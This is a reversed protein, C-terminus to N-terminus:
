WMSSAVRDAKAKRVGFPPQVPLDIADADATAAHGEGLLMLM